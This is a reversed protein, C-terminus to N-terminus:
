TPSWTMEAITPAPAAVAAASSTTTTAAEEEQSAGSVVNAGRHLGDNWTTQSSSSNPQEIDYIPADDNPPTICGYVSDWEEKTM